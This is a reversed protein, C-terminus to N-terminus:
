LTNIARAALVALVLLSLTAQLMMLIKSRRSLVLTDTPSFATSTNFALFLYDVFGPCWPPHAALGLAVQPFVFDSSAYGDHHRKAPGDSDIEWYWLAFTLVNAVWILAADGLLTPAGLSGSLLQAVLIVVSSLLAVTVIGLILFAFARTLHLHGRWRTVFLPVLLVGILALVLGRPGPSLPASVILYIAGIALVALVAPMLSRLGQLRHSRSPHETPHSEGSM